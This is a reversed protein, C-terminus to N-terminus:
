IMILLLAQLLWPHSKNEPMQYFAQKSETRRDM